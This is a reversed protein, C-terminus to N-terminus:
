EEQSDLIFNGGCECNTIYHPEEETRQEIYGRACTDCKYNYRPM